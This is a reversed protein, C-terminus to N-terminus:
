PVTAVYEYTGGGLEANLGNVLDIVADDSANNEIELLGVVDANITSIAAIIKDRQRTFEEANNAGRCDMNASPGCIPSGTDLTTFYNLVNFSAVTLSGGVAEPAATRSNAATYTAGETPQLCYSGFTDDIVGTANQVLDGGRFRNSLDFPLGNPHLAPDSNQSSRGDDLLIRALANAAAVDAAATSGPEAVATPQFQRGLSLVIENYRDFNFYESISLEQPFTVLMGEVAELDSSATLPLTVDTAAPAPAAAACVALEIDKVQTLSSAGSSTVYEAVTGRVRVHDGTAVDAAIRLPM